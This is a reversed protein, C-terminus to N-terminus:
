LPLRRQLSILVALVCCEQVSVEEEMERKGGVSDEGPPSPVPVHHGSFYHKMSIIVSRHSARQIEQMEDILSAKM